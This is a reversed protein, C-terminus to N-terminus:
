KTSTSSRTARSPDHHARPDGASSATACRSSSKRRKRRHGAGRHRGGDRLRQEHIIVDQAVDVLRRTLYGFPRRSRRTPWVKRARADLILVYAAVGHPRVSTRRSPRRSSKEPRSRWSGACEALQRIQQKSRQRRLRGHSCRNFQAKRDMQEMENFMANAIDETAESWIAIV